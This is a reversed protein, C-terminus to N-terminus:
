NVSKFMDKCVSFDGVWYLPIKWARLVTKASSPGRANYLPQSGETM